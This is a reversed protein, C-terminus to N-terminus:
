AADSPGSKPGDGRTCPSSATKPSRRRRWVVMLRTPLLRRRQESRGRAAVVRDALGPPYVWTLLGLGSIDSASTPLASPSKTKTPGFAPVTSPPSPDSKQRTAEPLEGM